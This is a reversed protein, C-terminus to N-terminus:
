SVSAALGEVYGPYRLAVHLEEKMRANRIRRNATEHPPLAALEEATQKLNVKGPKKENPKKKGVVVQVLKRPWGGLPKGLGGSLMDVVSDPFQTGPPLNLLKALKTSLVRGELGSWFSRQELLLTKATNMTVVFSSRPIGLEGLLAALMAIMEADVTPENVGFLEAGM